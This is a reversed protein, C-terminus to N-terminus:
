VIKRSYLYKNESKFGYKKVDFRRRIYLLWSSKPCSGEMSRLSCMHGESFSQNIEIEFCKAIYKKFNHLFIEFLEVPAEHTFFKYIIYSTYYEIDSTEYNVVNPFVKHDYIKTYAPSFYKKAFELNKNLETLNAAINHRFLRIFAGAPEPIYRCVSAESVNNVYEDM